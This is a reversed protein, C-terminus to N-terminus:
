DTNVKVRQSSSVRLGRKEAVCVLKLSPIKSAVPKPMIAFMLLMHILQGSQACLYICASAPGHRQQDSVVFCKKVGCRM